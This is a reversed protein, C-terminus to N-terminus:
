RIDKRLSDIAALREVEIDPVGWLFMSVIDTAVVVQKNLQYYSMDGSDTERKGFYKREILHYLEEDYIGLLDIAILTQLIEQYYKKIRAATSPEVAEKLGLKERIEKPIQLGSLFDIKAIFKSINQLLFTTNHYKENTRDFLNRNIISFKLHLPFSSVQWLRESIFDIGVSKKYNLTSTPIKLNCAIDKTSKNEIYSLYIVNYVDDRQQKLEGLILGLKVTLKHYETIREKIMGLLIQKKKLYYDGLSESECIYEELKVSPTYSSVISNCECMLNFKELLLKTADKTSISDDITINNQKVLNVSKFGM